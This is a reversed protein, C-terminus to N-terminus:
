DVKKNRRGSGVKASGSPTTLAVKKPLTTDFRFTPASVREVRDTAHWLALQLWGADLGAAYGRRVLVTFADEAAKLAAKQRFSLTKGGAGSKKLKM